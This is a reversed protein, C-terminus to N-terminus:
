APAPVETPHFAEFLRHVAKRGAPDTVRMFEDGERGLSSWYLYMSCRQGDPTDRLWAADRGIAEARVRHDGRRHRLTFGRETIGYPGTPAVNELWRQFGPHNDLGRELPEVREDIGSYVDCCRLDAEVANWGSPDDTRGFISGHRRHHPGWQYGLAAYVLPLTTNRERIKGALRNFYRAYDMGSRFPSEASEPEHWLVAMAPPQGLHWEALEQVAADWKGDIVQKPDLKFSYVPVMEKLWSKECEKGVKKYLDSDRHVDLVGSVFPRTLIVERFEKKVSTLSEEPTHFGFARVLVAPSTM